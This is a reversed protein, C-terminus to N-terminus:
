KIAWFYYLGCACVDIKYHCSDWDKTYQKFAENASDWTKYYGHEDAGDGAIHHSGGDVCWYATNSQSTQTNSQNNNTTTQSTTTQSSTSTKSNSNSNNNTTSTKNTNQANTNNKSSNNQNSTTKSENTSPIEENIIEEQKEQIIIKFEKKSKNDYIDEVEITATYEGAVEKNVNSFDINYEKTESLDSIKIYDKFNYNELDTNYPLEFKENIEIEPSISDKVVVNQILELDKYYIHITYEGVDSYGKEENIVMENKLSVKDLEMFNYKDLDILDKISPDYSEGYEIEINENILSIQSDRYNLYIYFGFISAVIIFIAILSIIIIKKKM